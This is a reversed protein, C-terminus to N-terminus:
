VEKASGEVSIFFPDRLDSKYKLHIIRKQENIITGYGQSGDYSFDLLKGDSRYSLVPLCSLADYRVFTWLEYTQRGGAPNVSGQRLSTPHACTSEYDRHEIQSGSQTMVRRGLPDYGFQRVLGKQDIRIVRGKEDYEITTRAGNQTAIVKQLRVGLKSAVHFFEYRSNDTVKDGCRKEVTSWFHNKRDGPDVEYGYSEICGDLGRASESARSAGAGWVRSWENHGIAREGLCRAADFPLREFTEKSGVGQRSPHTMYGPACRKEAAIIM